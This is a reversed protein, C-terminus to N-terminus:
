SREHGAAALQNERVFQAYSAKVHPDKEIRDLANKLENTRWYLPQSEAGPDLKTRTYFEAGIVAAFMALTGLCLAFAGMIREEIPAYHDQMKKMSLTLLCAGLMTAGVALMRAIELREISKQMRLVMLAIDNHVERSATCVQSYLFYLESSDVLPPQDANAEKVLRYREGDIVLEKKPLAKRM